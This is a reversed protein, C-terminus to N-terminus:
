LLFVEIHVVGLFVFFLIHWVDQGLPFYYTCVPTGIEALSTPSAKQPAGLVGAHVAALAVM